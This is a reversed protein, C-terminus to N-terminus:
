HIERLWVNDIWFQGSIDPPYSRSRPRWVLLRVAHTTPATTFEASVLHWSATGTTGESTASACQDCSPDVILLRPGSDSTIEEARVRAGFQYKRNPDVAVWEYASEYEANSAVTFNLMLANGTGIPVVETDLFPEQTLHWDLGINTPTQEFGSNVVLNDGSRPPIGAVHLDELDRYVRVLDSLDQKRELVGLYPAAEQLTLAPRSSVYETWFRRADEDLARNTLLNFFEIQVSRRPHHQVVNRWVVEPSAQQLCVGLAFRASAPEMELLRAVEPLAKQIDGTALHFMALENLFQPRSPAAAFSQEYASAACELDNASFCARGLNAWFQANEPALTTARRFESVAKEPQASDGNLYLLGAWNHLDANREDVALAGWINGVEPFEAQEAAWSIRGLRLSLVAVLACILGAFAVRAAKSTFQLEIQRKGSM